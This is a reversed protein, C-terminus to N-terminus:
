FRKLKQKDPLKLPADDNTKIPIEEYIIPSDEAECTESM